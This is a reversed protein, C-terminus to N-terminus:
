EHAKANPQSIVLITSDDNVIMKQTKILNLLKEVQDNADLILNKQAFKVLGTMGLELTKNKPLKILGETIGDTAIYM